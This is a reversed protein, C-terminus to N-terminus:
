NDLKLLGVNHYLNMKERVPNTCTSSNKCFSLKPGWYFSTIQQKNSYSTLNWLREMITPQFSARSLKWSTQFKLVSEEEMTLAEGVVALVHVLGEEILPEEQDRIAKTTKQTQDWQTKSDSSFLLLFQIQKNCLHIPAYPHKLLPFNSTQWKIPKKNCYHWWESKNQRKRRKKNEEEKGEWLGKWSFNGMLQHNQLILIIITKFFISKLIWM